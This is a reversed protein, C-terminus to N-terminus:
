LLLMQVSLYVPVSSPTYKFHFRSIASLDRNPLCQPCNLATLTFERRVDKLKITKTLHAVLALRSHPCTQHDDQSHDRHHGRNDWVSNKDHAWNDGSSLEPLPQAESSSGHHSEIRYMCVGFFCILMIIWLMKMRYM